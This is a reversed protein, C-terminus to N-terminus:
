CYTLRTTKDQKGISKIDNGKRKQFIFGKYHTAHVIEEYRINLM